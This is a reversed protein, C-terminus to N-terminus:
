AVGLGLLGYHAEVVSLVSKVCSDVQVCPAHAQADKVRSAVDNAVGVKGAMEVSQITLMPCAATEQARHTLGAAARGLCVALRSQGQLTTQHLRTASVWLSYTAACCVLTLRVNRNYRGLLTLLGETPIAQRNVESAM